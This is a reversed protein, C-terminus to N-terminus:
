RGDNMIRIANLILKMAKWYLVDEEAERENATVIQKRGRRISRTGDNDDAIVAVEAISRRSGILKNIKEGENSMMQM